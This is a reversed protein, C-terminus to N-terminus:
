RPRTEERWCAVAHDEAQRRSDFTPGYALGETDVVVWANNLFEHGNFWPEVSLGYAAAADIEERSARDFLGADMHALALAYGERFAAKAAGGAEKFEALFEAPYEGPIRPDNVNTM